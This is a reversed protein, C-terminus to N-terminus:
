GLLAVGARDLVTNLVRAAAARDDGPLDGWLSEGIGATRARVDRWLALGEDTPELNAQLLGAATLEALRARAADEDVRLAESIRGTLEGPPATAALTLAVWEPETVGTGALQRDLIANLAKETRGILQAGFPLDSM